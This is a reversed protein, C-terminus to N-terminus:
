GPEVFVGDQFFLEGFWPHHTRMTFRFRGEGLDCHTVQTGGPLFWDPLEITLRGFRFFHGDSVFHLARRAELVRLRMHLGAGLKEVLADGDFQKTSTVVCDRHAFAYRREWVIGDDTRYVRVHMPVNDGVYPAVPTGICRCLHAFVRGALNARVLTNGAYITTHHAHAGVAFRARVAAPLRAWAADGLLHEFNPVLSTTTPRPSRATTQGGEVLATAM